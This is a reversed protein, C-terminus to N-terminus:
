EGPWSQPKPSGISGPASSASSQHQITCRGGLAKASMAIVPLRSSAAPYDQMLFQGCLWVLFIILYIPCVQKLQRWNSQHLRRAMILVHHFFNLRYKRLSAGSDDVALCPTTASDRFVSHCSYLSFELGVSDALVSIWRCKACRSNFGLCNGPSRDPSRLSARM